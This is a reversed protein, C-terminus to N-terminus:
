RASVRCLNFKDSQGLIIHHISAAAVVGSQYVAATACCVCKMKTKSAKIVVADAETQPYGKSHKANRCKSNLILGTKLGDM